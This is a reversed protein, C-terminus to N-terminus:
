GQSGMPAAPLTTAGDGLPRQMLVSDLWRDFKFGINPLLGVQTFGLVQHLRISAINQSDGIVAIMQRFGQAACAHILRELLLRGIGRRHMHDATYVSNEVTYRYGLRPRHASAYTYGVLQGEHEAVFYPYGAGLIAAMRGQMEALTPPTLEWSATGHLVNTSYIAHIGAVDAFTAARIIVPNM